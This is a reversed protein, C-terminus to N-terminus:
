KPKPRGPLPLARITLSVNMGAKVLKPNLIIAGFRGLLDNRPNDIIASPGHMLGILVGDAEALFKPGDSTTVFTSGAYVWPGAPITKKTGQDFLIEEIQVRRTKDGGPLDIWLEVPDGEPAIPDFQVKSPRSRAPDLGILLLAANFSIADTDLTVASEYAKAGDKANAIFEVTTVDNLTGPVTVDRRATDVLLAGVRYTHEGLKEVQSRATSPQPSPSAATANLVLTFWICGLLRISSNV